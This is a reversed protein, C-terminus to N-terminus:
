KWEFDAKVESEWYMDQKELRYYKNDAPGPYGDVISRINHFRDSIRNM